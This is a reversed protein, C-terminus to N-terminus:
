LGTLPWYTIRHKWSDMAHCERKNTLTRWQSSQTSDPDNDLPVLLLASHVQILISSRGPIPLFSPLFGSMRMRFCELLMRLCDDLGTHAFHSDKNWPLLRKVWVEFDQKLGAIPRLLSLSTEREEVGRKVHVICVFVLWWFLKCPAEFINYLLRRNCHCM